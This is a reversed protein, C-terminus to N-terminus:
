QLPAKPVHTRLLLLLVPLLKSESPVAGQAEAHVSTSSIGANEARMHVCGPIQLTRLEEISWHGPFELMQGRTHLLTIDCCVIMALRSIGSNTPTKLPLVILPLVVRLESLFIASRSAKSFGRFVESFRKFGRFVESVM